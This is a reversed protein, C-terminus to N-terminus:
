QLQSPLIALVAPFHVTDAFVQVGQEGTAVSLRSSASVRDIDDVAVIRRAILLDHPQDCRAERKSIRHGGSSADVTHERDQAGLRCRRNGARAVRLEAAAKPSKDVPDVPPLMERRHQPPRPFQKALMFGEAFGESVEMPFAFSVKPFAQGTKGIGKATIHGTAARTVQDAIRAGAARALAEDEVRSPHNAGGIADVEAEPGNRGGLEHDGDVRVDM